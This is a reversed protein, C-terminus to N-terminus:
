EPEHESPNHIEKILRTSLLTYGLDAYLQQAPQNFGYVNLELASAGRAKAWGEVALMLQKGAGHRQYEPLVSLTDIKVFRRPVLIPADPADRLCAVVVGVITKGDVAVVVLTQSDKLLDLYYTESWAPSAPRFMFAANRAHFALIEDAARSIGPYDALTALRLNLNM